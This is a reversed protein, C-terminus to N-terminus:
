KSEKQPLEPLNTAGAKKALEYLLLCAVKPPYKTKGLKLNNRVTIADERTIVKNVQTRYTDLAKKIEPGLAEQCGQSIMPLADYCFIFIEAYKNLGKISALINTITSESATEKSTLDVGLFRGLRQRAQKLNLLPGTQVLNDAVDAAANTANGAVLFSNAFLKGRADDAIDSEKMAKQRLELWEDLDSPALARFNRNNLIDYKGLISGQDSAAAGDKEVAAVDTLQLKNSDAAKAINMFYTDSYNNADALFKPIKEKISLLDIIPNEAATWGLRKNLYGISSQFKKRIKDADEGFTEKYYDKWFAEQAQSTKCDQFEQEWNRPASAPTTNAATATNNATAQTSDAEQLFFREELIYKM